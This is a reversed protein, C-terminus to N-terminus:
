SLLLDVLPRQLSSVLVHSIHLRCTHAYDFHAGDRSNRVFGPPRPESGLCCGTPAGAIPHCFTSRALELCMRITTIFTSAAWGVSTAIFGHRPAMFSPGKHILPVHALTSIMARMVSAFACVLNAESSAVDLHTM